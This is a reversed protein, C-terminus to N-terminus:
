WRAAGPAPSPTSKPRTGARREAIRDDLLWAGTLLLLGISVLAAVGVPMSMMALLYGLLPLALVVRGVLRDQTVLVPDAAPNADGKLRFMRRDDQQVVEDVRHTLITGSGLDVTVVDGAGLSAPDQKVAVVLAGVGIAPAMSGSRIALARGGIAPALYATLGVVLVSVALTALALDLGRRLVTM